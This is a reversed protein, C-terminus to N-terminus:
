CALLGSFSSGIEIDATRAAGGGNVITRVYATDAADMDAAAVAITANWNTLGTGTPNYIGNRYSRNSTMIDVDIEDHNAADLGGVLIDASLSYAGDYTATFIGTGHVFENCPDLIESDYVQTYSTGDGTVNAKQGTTVGLFHSQYPKRIRGYWDVRQALNTQLVPAGPAGPDFTLAECGYYHIRVGYTGANRNGITCALYETGAGDNYMRFDTLCPTASIGQYNKNSIVSCSCNGDYGYGNVALVVTHDRNTYYWRIVFIGVIRTGSALYLTGDGAVACLGYQVARTDQLGLYSGANVYTTSSLSTGATISGDASFDSNVFGDM